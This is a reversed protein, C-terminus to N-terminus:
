VGESVAQQYASNFAANSSSGNAAECASYSVSMIAPPQSNSNILNQMAILGGFTTASDACTAMVIAASPAAATAWEADLIAEGENSGVLGPNACNGPHVTNLTGSFSSLGFTSRFTSWDSTSFLNTNEILAITQGQGTVGSNFLPNLNYITALDGPVM